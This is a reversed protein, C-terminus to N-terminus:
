IKSRDLAGTVTGDVTYDELSRFQNAFTSWNTAAQYKQVLASPIYIYGEGNAIPTNSFANVNELTILKTQRMVVATLASCQNFSNNFVYGSVDGLEVYQLSICNYCMYPNLQKAKPAYLETLAKCNRFTSNGIKEVDSCLIQSLKECGQFAAGELSTARSVDVKELKKVAYFAAEAVTLAEPVYVEEIENAYYFANAMVEAAMPFNVKKVAFNTRFANRGVFSANSTIETAGEVFAALTDVGGGEATVMIDAPCYKGATLLRRKEGGPITIEVSM